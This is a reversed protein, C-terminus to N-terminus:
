LAVAAANGTDFRASEIDELDFYHDPGNVHKLPLDPTNRWRDPEGALFAIRDKVGADISDWIRRCRHWHSNTSQTIVKMIGLGPTSFSRGLAFAFLIKKM